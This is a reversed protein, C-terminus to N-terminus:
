LDPARNFTRKDSNADGKLGSKEDEGSGCGLGSLDAVGEGEEVVEGGVPPPHRDSEYEWSSITSSLSPHGCLVRHIEGVAARGDEDRRFPRRIGLIM